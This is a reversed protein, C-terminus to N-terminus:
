GYQKQAFDLSKILDKEYESLDTFWKEKVYNETQKVKDKIDKWSQPKKNGQDDTIGTIITDDSLQDVYFETAEKVLLQKYADIREIAYKMDQQKSVNNFVIAM